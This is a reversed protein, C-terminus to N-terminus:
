YRRFRKPKCPSSGGTPGTSPASTTTTTSGGVPPIQGSVDIGVSNCLNIAATRAADQDATSCAGKICTTSTTLFASSSCTCKYDTASCGSSSIGSVLCSLACSPFASLQAYTTTIAGAALLVTSFKM